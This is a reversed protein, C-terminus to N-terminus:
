DAPDAPPMRDMLYLLGVMMLSAAAMLHPGFLWFVLPVGLVFARMGASYFAGARNLHRAVLDPRLSAPRREVPLSIHFGVHNYLRVSMAFSFFAILLDALLALLKVEALGPHRSGASNLSHWDAAIEASQGSLSLVGMILVVSTSAFFTAAMTSNRLTQVGLIGHSPDAMIHRVWNRRAERNVSQITYSPSRRVKLLLVLHYVLLVLIGLGVWLIDVRYESWWAQM